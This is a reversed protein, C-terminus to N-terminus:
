RERCVPMSAYQCGFPCGFSTSDPGFEPWYVGIERELKELEKSGIAAECGSCVPMSVGLLPRIQGSYVPMSVGLLPRIQGSNLGIFM